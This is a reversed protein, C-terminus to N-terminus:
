HERVRTFRGLRQPPPPPSSDTPAPAPTLPAATSLPTPADTESALVSPASPTSTEDGEDTDAEGAHPMSQLLSRLASATAESDTPREETDTPSSPREGSTGIRAAIADLVPDVEVGIIGGSAYVCEEVQLNVHSLEHEGTQRTDTRLAYVPVGLALAYGMETATGSDVDNGDLVALMSASRRIMEFNRAAVERSATRLSLERGVGPPLSLAHALLEGNTWPDLPVLGRSM